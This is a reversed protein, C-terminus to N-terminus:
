SCSGEKLWYDKLQNCGLCFEAWSVSLGALVPFGDFCHNPPNYMLRSCPTGCIRLIELNNEAHLFFGSGPSRGGSLPM